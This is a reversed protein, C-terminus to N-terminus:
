AAGREETATGRGVSATFSIPPVVFSAPPVVRSDLPFPKLGFPGRRQADNVAFAELYVVIGSLTVVRFDSNSARRVLPM